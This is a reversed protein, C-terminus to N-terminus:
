KRTGFNVTYIAAGAMKKLPDKAQVSVGVARFRRQLINARHMPSKMWMRMMQAPQALAGNALGLNEGTNGRYKARRARAKLAPGGPRQHNYYRRQLMDATHAAASATLKPNVTLPRLRRRARERNILCVVAEALQQESGRKPRMTGSCRAAQAARAVLAGTQVQASHESRAAQHSGCGGSRVELAYAQLGPAPFVVPITLKVAKGPAPPSFTRCASLGMAGAPGLDVMVGIVPSDPDYLELVLDSPKGAVPPRPFTASLVGPLTPDPAPPQPAATPTPDPSPSPTPSPTPTPEPDPEPPREDAGIDPAARQTRPQGDIDTGTAAAGADITPSAATQHVGDAALLPDAAINGGGDTIGAAKEPRLASHSAGAAVETSVGPIERVDHTSGRLISNTVSVRADAEPNGGVVLAEGGSTATVNRITVVTYADLVWIARGEDGPALAASSIARAASDLRMAVGGAATARAIVREVTAGLAYVAPEDAGSQVVEVDRLAAGLNRLSVSGLLRPRTGAAGRVVIPQHVSLTSQLAYDGAALEVEAGEGAEMATGVAGHVSCPDAQACTATASGAPAAYFVAASAASPTLALLVLALKLSRLM